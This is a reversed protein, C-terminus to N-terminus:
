QLILQLLDSEFTTGGIVFSKSTIRGTSEDYTWEISSVRILYEKDAGDTGIYDRKAGNGDYANREAYIQLLKYMEDGINDYPVVSNKGDTEYSPKGQAANWYEGRVAIYLENNFPMGTEVAKFYDEKTLSNTIEEYNSGRLRYYGFPTYDAFLVKVVVTGIYIENSGDVGILVTCTVNNNGGGRLRNIDISYDYKENIALM